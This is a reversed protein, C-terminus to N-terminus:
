GRAPPAAEPGRTVSLRVLADRLDNATLTAEVRDRLEADAIGHGIGLARCAARLRDAHAAWEFPEGGYARLTEVAADGYRFGRDRAAVARSEPVLDGDVHCRRADAPAASGGGAREASSGSGSDSEIGPEPGSGSEADSRSGSSGDPEERDTM